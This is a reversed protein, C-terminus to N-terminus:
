KSRIVFAYSSTRFLSQVRVFHYCKRLQVNLVERHVNDEPLHYCQRGCSSNQDGTRINKKTQQPM